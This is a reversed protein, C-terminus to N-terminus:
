DKHVPEDIPHERAEQKIADVERKKLAALGEIDVQEAAEEAEVAARLEEPGYLEIVKRLFVAVGALFMLIFGAPLFAKIIWRHTLGTMAASVEGQDFSRHVFDIGFWTLIGLYPFLFLACGVLEIWQQKRHPLKGRVLDIRVHADALYAFGFGMSFLVTHFHWEWEQLKTSSLGPIQINAKRTIVDVMIFLICLISAWAGIKGLRTVFIDIGHSIRALAQM